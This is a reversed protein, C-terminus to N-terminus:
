GAIKRTAGTAPDWVVIAAGLRCILRPGNAFPVPQLRPEFRTVVGRDIDVVACGGERLTVVVRGSGADALSDPIRPLVVNRLPTESSSWIRLLRGKPDVGAIRGDRLFRTGTSTVPMSALVAGTRADRVDISNQGRMLTLSRERNFRYPPHPLRGTETLSKRQVDYEYATVVEGGIAYLRVQGPADFFGMWRAVPIRASGLSRGDAVDYVTLISDRSIVVLRSGDASVNFFDGSRLNIKTTIPTPHPADLRAMRLKTFGSAPVAWFAVQQDNATMGAWWPPMDDIRIFRDDDTNYLFSAHYDARHKGFGTIATWSGNDPFVFFRDTSFDAPTMSVVWGVWAGVVLLGCGIAIWLFRSLERHSRKRDTRGAALQWAGAAITSLMAFVAFAVAVTRILGVAFGEALKEALFWLAVGCLAAAVFDLVIWVSRSRVFTGLVHAVFFMAFPLALIIAMPTPDVTSWVNRISRVGMVLAPLAIIAASAVVLLLAAAVKGFWISAAPVPKSFYFSLRRDSLERGVITSGLILALAIAFNAAFVTSLIIMADRRSEAHFMPVFSIVVSLAAFAVAAVFTFRREVLERRAIVLTSRM